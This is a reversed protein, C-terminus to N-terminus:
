LHEQMWRYIDDFIEDRNLESHLEHRCDEYLRLEVDDLYRTYMMFAKKVGKGGYKEKDGDRLEVAEFIGTSAGSPVIARGMKEDSTYVDVEVTPNSRSDLVERAYVDTIEIYKKM